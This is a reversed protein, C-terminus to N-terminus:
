HRETRKSAVSIAHTPILVATSNQPLAQLQQIQASVVDAKLKLGLKTFREYMQQLRPLDKPTACFRECLLCKV